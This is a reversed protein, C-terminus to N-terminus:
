GKSGFRHEPFILLESAASSRPYDHPWALFSSLPAAPSPRPRSGSQKAQAKVANPLHWRLACVNRDRATVKGVHQLILTCCPSSCSSSCDLLHMFGVQPHLSHPTLYGQPEATRSGPRGTCGCGHTSLLSRAPLHHLSSAPLLTGLELPHPLGLCLCSFVSLAAPSLSGSLGLPPFSSPVEPSPGM